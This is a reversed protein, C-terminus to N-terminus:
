HTATVLANWRDNWEKWHAVIPRIDLHITTPVNALAADKFYPNAPQTGTALELKQGAPSLLWDYFLVAAAPHPLNYVLGLGQPREVVPASFPSFSIPAGRAQLQEVPQAHETVVVQVQGAALANAQATHGSTLQANALISKFLTDAQAKTLKPKAQTTLYTYMGAYWDVDTPEVSLRGKWKPDGLELFSKPPDKVLNTNWAVVYEDFHDAVFTDFRYTKPIQIRYPSQSFPVLVNKKHQLILMTPANVELVDAGAHGVSTEALVRATVDESAARYIALPVDPYLAKWANGVQTTATSSLTTYWNLGGEQGAIQHLKAEREKVKLGKVAKMVAQLNAPMPPPGKPPASSGASVAVLAVCAAVAFAPAIRSGARARM